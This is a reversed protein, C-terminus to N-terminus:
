VPVRKPREPEIGRLSNQMKGIFQRCRGLSGWPSPLDNRDTIAAGRIQSGQLDRAVTSIFKDCRGSAYRRGAGCTLVEIRFGGCSIRGIDWALNSSVILM